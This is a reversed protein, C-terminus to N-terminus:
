VDTAANTTFYLTIGHLRANVAMNDSSDAVVRSIQFMVYDQPSPSGDITIASSEGSIYLNNTVGGTGTITQITGFAVDLGENNSVAVGALSWVVGFNTSTAPHSWSVSFSVTGGDWSKPMRISFQGYQQTTTDFDLTSIINKNTVAEVIAQIAGNTIRSSIAAAPVWITHKGSTVQTAHLGDLLDADLGSGSGDNDTNWYSFGNTTIGSSSIKTNVSSNGLSVTTSNITVNAGVAIM